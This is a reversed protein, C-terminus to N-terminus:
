FLIDKLFRIIAASAPTLVLTVLVCTALLTNRVFALFPRWMVVLRVEFGDNITKFGFFM